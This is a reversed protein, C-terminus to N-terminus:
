EAEEAPPELHQWAQRRDARLGHLADRHTEYGDFFVIAPHLVTGHNERWAIHQESLEATARSLTSESVGMQRSQYRRSTYSRRTFSSQKEVLWDFLRKARPSVATLGKQADPHIQGISLHDECKQGPQEVIRLCGRGSGWSSSANCIYSQWDTLLALVDPDVARHRARAKLIDTICDLASPTLTLTARGAADISHLSAGRKLIDTLPSTSTDTM